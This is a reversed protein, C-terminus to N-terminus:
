PQFPPPQMPCWGDFIAWIWGSEGGGVPKSYSTRRIGRGRLMRKVEERDIGLNGAILFLHSRWMRILRLLRGSNVTLSSLQNLWEGEREMVKWAERLSSWHDIGAFAGEV